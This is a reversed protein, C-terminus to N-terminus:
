RNGVEGWGSTSSLYQPMFINFKTKNEQYFKTYFAVQKIKDLTSLTGNGSQGSGHLFIVIPKDEGIYSELYPLGYSSYKPIQALATCTYFLVAFVVAIILLLKKM